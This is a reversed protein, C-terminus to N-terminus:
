VRRSSFGRSFLGMIFVLVAAGLIAPVLAIGGVEPGFNGFMASGMWAGIIGIIANVFFGGFVPGPVVYEAIAACAAAIILFIIFSLIGM